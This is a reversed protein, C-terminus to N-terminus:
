NQRRLQCLGVGKGTGNNYRSQVIKAVYKALM